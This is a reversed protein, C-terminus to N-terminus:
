VVPIKMIELIVKVCDLESRMRLRGSMCIRIILSLYMKLIFKYMGYLFSYVIKITLLIWNEVIVFLIFSWKDYLLCLKGCHLCLKLVGLNCM